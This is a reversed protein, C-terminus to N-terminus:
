CRPHPRGGLPGAGGPREGRRPTRRDHGRTHDFWQTRKVPRERPVRLARGTRLCAVLEGKLAGRGQAYLAQYIAEHSIRITENDPFDLHLRQAIQEPSWSMAWRRDQRRGHRRGIFRTTPGSVPEGNPRTVMGGLREQVYDRLAENSALRAVKPVVPEVIVTGSRRRRGISWGIHGPPPTTRRLERSITSPCRGLQRVIERVGVHQAHLIAIEERERFSWYRESIPALSIPTMGGAQRFWRTGVASSVGTEVAAVETSVGRAIAEWFRVRVDRGAVPHGPSRMQGRMARVEQQRKGIGM